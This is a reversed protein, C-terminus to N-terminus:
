PPADSTLESITVGAALVRALLQRARKLVGTPQATIARRPFIVERPALALCSTATRVAITDEDLRSLKKVVIEPM